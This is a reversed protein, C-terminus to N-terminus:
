YAIMRVVPLCDLNRVGEAQGDGPLTDASVDETGPGEGLGEKFPPLQSVRNHRPDGSRAVRASQSTSSVM